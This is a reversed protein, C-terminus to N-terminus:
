AAARLLARGRAAIARKINGLPQALKRREDRCKALHFLDSSEEPDWDTNELLNVWGLWQEKEGYPGDGPEDKWLDFEKHLTEACWYPIGAIQENWERLEIRNAAYEMVLEDSTKM